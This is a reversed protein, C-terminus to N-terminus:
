GTAPPESIAQAGDATARQARFRPLGRRAALRAHASRSGPKHRSPHPLAALTLPWVARPRQRRAKIGYLWIRCYGIIRM